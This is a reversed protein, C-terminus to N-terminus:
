SKSGTTPSLSLSGGSARHRKLRMGARILLEGFQALFLGGKEPRTGEKGTFNDFEGRQIRREYSRYANLLSFMDAEKRIIFGFMLRISIICM